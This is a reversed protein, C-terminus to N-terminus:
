GYQRRTLGRLAEGRALEDVLHHALPIGLPPRM